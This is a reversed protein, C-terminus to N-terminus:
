SPHDRPAIAAVSFEPGHSMAAGGSANQLDGFLILHIGNHESHTELVAHGPFPALRADLNQPTRGDFDEDCTGSNSRGM